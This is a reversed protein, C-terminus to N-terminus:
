REYDTKYCDNLLLEVVDFAAQTAVENAAM